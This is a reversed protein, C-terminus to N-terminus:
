KKSILVSGLIVVVLGIVAYLDYPYYENWLAVVQGMVGQNSGIVVVIIVIFLIVFTNGGLISSLPNTSSQDATVNVDAKVGLTASIQAASSSMLKAVAQGLNTQSIGSINSYPLATINARNSQTVGIFADNVSNNTINSKIISGVQTNINSQTGSYGLTDQHQALAQAIGTTLQSQLDGSQAAQAVASISINSENSQTIGSVNSFSSSTINLDNSQAISGKSSTSINAMVSTAVDNTIKAIQDSKSQSAGM